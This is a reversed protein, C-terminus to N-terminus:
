GAKVVFLPVLMEDESMGGHNGILDSPGSGALAHDFGWGNRALLVYDGIRNLLAPHQKGPGYVGSAVLDERAICMCARYLKKSVIDLFARVKYPKVFCSVHRADGSPIITLSDMFGPIDSMRVLNEAPVDVLGHDATVILTTGTGEIQGAIRGLVKDIEALHNVTRDAFCGAEHCLMDYDPWYAFALGPEAENAFGVIQQELELLSTHGRKKQWRTCANTFKSELLHSPHVLVTKAKVTEVYSPIKLYASLDHDEPFVPMGTRTTGPLIATVVGVDQLHVFWGPIAHEAPTVGTSFCTVAAATTAPFVTSITQYERGAFFSQGGGSEVFKKLQHLGLGDVCLYVIRESSALSAASLSGLESHPSIGGKAHILSSLLNVISGGNYDPAYFGRLPGKTIIPM